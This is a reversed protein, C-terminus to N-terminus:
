ADPPLEQAITLGTVHERLMQSFRLCADATWFTTVAGVVTFLTIAYQPQGGPGKGTPQIMWSAPTPVPQVQPFQEGNDSM